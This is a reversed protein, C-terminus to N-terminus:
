KTEVISRVMGAARHLDRVFAATREQSGGTLSFRIEKKDPVIFSWFGETDGLLHVFDEVIIESKDSELVNVQAFIPPDPRGFFVFEGLFRPLPTDSPWLSILAEFVRLYSRGSIMTEMGAKMEKTAGLLLARLGSLDQSNGDCAEAAADCFSNVAPSARQVADSRGMHFHASSTPEWSNMNRGFFLRVALQFTLDIVGKVPTRSQVLFDTGFEDLPERVYTSASTKELFRTRLCEIHNDIEPTTQLVLEDLEVGGPNAKPAVPDVSYNELATGVWELLRAPTTGDITGHEQIQGSRGNASVFFQLVKDFWRNSGDGIYGARAVEEPNEPSGTDLCLVFIASDIVHFYQANGPNMDVLNERIKAWSDRNDTTLMGSWLDDGDVRDIIADFTTQLQQFTVDQGDKDQLLVKFVRGKRLVAIHDHMMQDDLSYSMMKDCRIQPVRTSNLLWKWGWTCEPNGGIDLPEVEGAKVARKFSRISSAIIAAREAQSHRVSMERHAGMISSGPAISARSRLFRGNTVVDTFWGNSKDLAHAEYLDNLVRRATSEPCRMAELEGRISELQEGSFMLENAELWFDLADDLDPLPQAPLIKHHKCCDWGHLSATVDNGQSTLNSLEDSQPETQKGGSEDRLEELGAAVAAIDDVKCNLAMRSVILKALAVISPASSLESTQLPMQFSHKVWNKLEISVLSDLGLAAVPQDDPVDDGTFAAFKELLAQKVIDEAKPISSAQGVAQIASQKQKDSTNTTTTQGHRRKSPVHDFIHDGLAEPGMAEEMTDRNFPMLCQRAGDSRAQPTMAYALTEMVEDFSVSGVIRVFESNQSLAQSILGSGEVAGVNVTTYHTIGQSYRGQAHAFADLFANGAAYNSQSSSGFISAVSSLSVFFDTTEGSCFYRHMNITGQVKPMIATRWDKHDMYELPHDALVTASQVIGRVPPLKAIEESAGRTSDADNIDCKVIHLTGGLKSIAEEFPARQAADLHRRTLAVIHGAGKGALLYGIKQGLDGLGGGIIYTGDEQLRLPMAKPKTAQVLTQDDATLVVKGIHKRAAVLRFTDEIDAMSYTKVPQVPKLLGEDIKALVEELGRTVLGPRKQYMLSPDVAAFIVQREFNAMSLQSRGNIDSKGIELFTGFQAVCDWSDVLHQGSLSNLVADVGKGQTSALIRRKFNSYSLIHSEPIGYQEALLQKKGASSVTAFIEAGVLNALQIAAQGVAGAAAHILVSQGKELRAVQTLCYWATYYAWPISAADSFSLSDPIAVAGNSDIRVLNGFPAVMLGIVRDGAKWSQVNAGVAKIVGAVEGLMATGPASRGLAVSVDKQNLGHARAEIEIQDPGLPESMKDNDVFGITNLLGPVRVNLMLPRNNNLYPTPESQDQAPSLSDLYTSFREDPIVRPIALKGGRTVYELEEARTSDPGSWFTSTAIETLTKIIQEQSENSSPDIGDQVDVTVLRLGPNERRMVRAMGNVMNAMAEAEGSKPSTQFSAWLINKGQLLLQKFHEFIEPTPDLLLPHEASDVVITLGDFSAEDSTTDWSEQSCKIGLETFADSIKDGIASQFADPHGSRIKAALNTDHSSVVNSSKALRAVIMTSLSSRRGDHAPIAMDAGNFGHRKLCTDWEGPKLLAKVNALTDDIRPTAHLELSAVIVDFSHATYGQALPDHSIDLTKFNIQSEWRSFKDRAREFSGSSVNTYTYEDALLREGREMSELVPLTAGGTGPDIELFKMYPNKHILAQMYEAMQAYHCRFLTHESYLRRLLDDQAMLEVASVKGTFLDLYQPGLRNLAVGVIGSEEAQHILKDEDEAAVGDLLQAGEGQDWKTMWDLLQSLHPNCASSISQEHLARVTRRIFISAAIENLHLQSEASMESEDESAGVDFLGQQSLHDMFDNQTVYDVDPKWELRYTTKRPASDGSGGDGVAQPRLKKATMVPRFSGDARQQYACFDATGERRSESFFGSAVIIDTGPTEDMDVAISLEAVSVPMIPAVICERHFMVAVLQIISDFTTPHITHPQQYQGPMRQVVDEIVVKAFSQCKTVHVEKLGQFSPGYTNGIEALGHYVNTADLAVDCQIQYQELMEAASSDTLHGLGSDEVDAVEEGVDCDWSTMGSFHESWSESQPDYSLVRFDEWSSGVHQRSPSIVLQLEVDRSGESQEDPVVVAKTFKVNRFNINKLQGSTKRLQFLQKMAEIVMIMYGAGPFIVLGEIIHDRLWPLQEVSVINRWRPEQPSSTVDFLGLLDHRPFPRFRYNKSLRSEHWYTNSHDWAYTPLNGVVRRSSTIDSEIKDMSTVADLNVSGGFEFVQGALALTADVANQNRVLCPVYSYKFTAGSALTLNSLTQRLPGSLAAHPGVEMVVNSASSSRSAELHEAVLTSAASFKVQSVLNSVWYYPGFDSKKRAGTVSSYFAVEKSPLGHSLDGLTSLYAKAVAQMHHSHYASDVQLRRNFVSADDLDAQLALIADLDGSITTSEPSNVCAVTIRGHKADLARIRKNVANEGEGVALMAGVTANLEKAQASCIGRNYAVQMAAKRSLAGAAYAAAIEGSSHGCVAEPRIGLSALMDVLAMQVATTCPQSFRADGLRTTAKDRLLEEVLDWDSGASRIMQNCAAISTAFVTSGGRLLLERGMGFWQAGQGTFIFSIAVDRASKIPRAIKTNLLASALDQPNRAVISCRWPLKSRRVNLTYALDALSTSHSQESNLWQSLRTMMNTLSLESNASLVVLRATDEEDSKVEGAHGNTYGNSHGNAHGNSHGNTYGNAVSRDGYAELIAHANTGGYGFSNVSVRRPGVYGKPTLSTLELPVHIGREELKLTPKPNKFNLQPPILNKKLVMIAKVMSAVGSAAEMHGVNTKVSGVPVDTTRGGERGFVRSISGIEQHDGAVTGTGHAEVFLTDLPNLGAKAYVSKALIGTNLIVAHIPDGDAVAKDLRKTSFVGQGEGRAYGHGRDDFTYCRGDANTLQAMAMSQDPTLILQSAGALAMDAEDAKLTRCAQHLAVLGGSCGTDLTNSTGKLDWVYSIRNALIAEGSGIVHTKHLNPGDRFGMRDYDRAFMAIHVSTNSGRLSEIPIGANEVAEYAVELLLRQQPDMGTAEAGLIGFFRADFAAVDQQLFYAHSFNTVEGMDPNKHYFSKWNWRDKPVEARGDRGEALMSWLSEPDHAGGPLRCAMGIIAIPSEKEM